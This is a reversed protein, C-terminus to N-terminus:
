QLHCYVLFFTPFIVHNYKCMHLNNELITAAIKRHSPILNKIGAESFKKIAGKGVKGDVREVEDDRKVDM